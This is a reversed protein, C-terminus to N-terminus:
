IWRLSIIKHLVVQQLQSCFLRFIGIILLNHESRQAHSLIFQNQHHSLMYTAFRRHFMWKHHAQLLLHFVKVVYHFTWAYTSIQASLHFLHAPPKQRGFHLEVMGIFQAPGFIQAWSSNFNQRLIREVIKHLIHEVNGGFALCLHGIDSGGLTIHRM